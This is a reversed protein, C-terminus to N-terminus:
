GCRSFGSQPRSETAVRRRCDRLVGLQSYDDSITKCLQNIESPGFSHNSVVMDRVDFVAAETM